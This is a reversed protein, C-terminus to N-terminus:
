WRLEGRARTTGRRDGEVEGMGSATEIPQVRVRAALLKGVRLKGREALLRRRVVARCVCRSQQADDVRRHTAGNLLHAASGLAVQETGSLYSTSAKEGRHDAQEEMSRLMGLPVETLGHGGRADNPSGTALRAM